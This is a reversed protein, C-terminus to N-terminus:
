RRRRRRRRRQVIRRRVMRRRRRRRRRSCPSLAACTKLLHSSCVMSTLKPYLQPVSNSFLLTCLATPLATAAPAASRRPRLRSRTSRSLTPSEAARVESAFSSTPQLAAMLKKSPIPKLKLARVFDDVSDTQTIDSLHEAGNDDCWQVALRLVAV